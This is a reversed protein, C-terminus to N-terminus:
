KGVQTSPFFIDLDGTEAVESLVQTRERRLGCQKINVSEDFKRLGQTVSKPKKTNHIYKCDIFCGGREREGM